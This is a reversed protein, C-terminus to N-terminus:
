MKMDAMMARHSEMLRTVRGAHAPMAQQLEAASMGAMRTLDQRLSDITANWAKDGDMNMDRMDKNFQAIMNAVQQRHVPLQSMMSDASVGDMMRLHTQMQSMMDEGGMGPMAAMGSMGGGADQAAPVKDSDASKGGSCSALLLAAGVAAFSRRSFRRPLVRM